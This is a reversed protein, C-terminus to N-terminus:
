RRNSVPINAVIFVLRVLQVGERLVLGGVRLAAHAEERPAAEVHGLALDRARELDGRGRDLSDSEDDGSFYTGKREGAKGARGLRM